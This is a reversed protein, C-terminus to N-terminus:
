LTELSKIEQHLREGHEESMDGLNQSFYYLHAHLIHVKLSMCCGIAEFCALMNKVITKLDSDKTDGLFKM